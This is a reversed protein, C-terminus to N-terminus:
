FLIYDETGLKWGCVGKLKGLLDETKRIFIIWNEWNIVPKLYDMTM